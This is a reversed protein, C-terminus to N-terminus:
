RVTKLKYEEYIKRAADLRRRFANSLGFVDEESLVGNINLLNYAEGARKSSRSSFDKLAKEYKHVAEEAKRCILENYLAENEKYLDVLTLKAKLHYFLRDDDINKSPINVSSGQYGKKIKNVYVANTTAPLLGIIELEDYSLPLKAPMASNNNDIFLSTGGSADAIIKLAEQYPKGTYEMVMDILGVTKKCTFCHYGKATLVANTAVNDPTGMRKEHGPCHIFKYHGKDIIEMGLYQAVTYADAENLLAARDIKKM